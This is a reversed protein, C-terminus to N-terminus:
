KLRGGCKACYKDGHFNGDKGFNPPCACSRNAYNELWIVYEMRPAGTYLKLAHYGTEQKYQEKLTM